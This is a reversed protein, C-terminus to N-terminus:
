PSPNSFLAQLEELFEQKKGIKEQEEITLVEGKIVKQELFEIQRLKKRFIKIKKETNKGENKADKELLFRENEALFV